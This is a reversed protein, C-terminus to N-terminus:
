QLLIKVREDFNFDRKVKKYGQLCIKRRLEEERLYFAAKEYLDGYDQYVVIEQEPEFYELAEEQMNMLVLGQCGLIDIVRLPIGTRITRLTINLNIKSNHFICPMETYYDAYGCEQVNQLHCNQENSYLKVPFHKALLSLIVYRERATVECGLMYQLEKRTIQVKQNSAKAYDANMEKLLDDTVCEPIIYDGQIKQQAALIGELMGKAHDNLPGLYYNYDTNYLKGLLAIDSHFKSNGQNKRIVEGFVDTDVALPLHKARIGQKQLELAEGRDFLYITVVSYKMAEMNRINMPSDYVWAVYEIDLEQCVEALIPSFNVSLLRDYGNNLQNTLKEKLIEDKEWDTFVYEFTDYNQQLRKLANEIGPNM